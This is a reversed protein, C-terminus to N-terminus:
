GDIEVSLIRQCGPDLWGYVLSVRQRGFLIPVQCSCCHLHHQPRPPPPPRIRNNQLLQHYSKRLVDLSSTVIPGQESLDLTSYKLSDIMMSAACCTALCCTLLTIRIGSGTHKLIRRETQLKSAYEHLQCNCHM